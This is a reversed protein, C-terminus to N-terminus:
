SHGESGIMDHMQSVWEGTHRLKLGKNIIGKQECAFLKWGIYKTFWSKDKPLKPKTIHIM